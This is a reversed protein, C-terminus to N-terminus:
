EDEKEKEEEQKEIEEKYASIFSGIEHLEHLIDDSDLVDSVEYLATAIESHLIMRHKYQLWFNKSM